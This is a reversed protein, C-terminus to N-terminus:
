THKHLDTDLFFWILASGHPDPVSTSIYLIHETDVDIYIHFLFEFLYCQSVSIWINKSETDTHNLSILLSAYLSCKSPPTRSPTPVKLRSMDRRGALTVLSSSNTPKEPDRTLRRM